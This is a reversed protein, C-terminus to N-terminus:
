GFAVFYIKSLVYQNTVTTINKTNISHNGKNEKGFEAISPSAHPLSVLCSKLDRTDPCTCVVYAPVRACVCM